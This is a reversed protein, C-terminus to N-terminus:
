WCSPTQKFQVLEPEGVTVSVVANLENEITPTDSFDVAPLKVGGVLRNERTWYVVTGDSPVSLQLPAPHVRVILEVPEPLRSMSAPAEVAM